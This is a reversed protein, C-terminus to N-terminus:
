EILCQPFAQFPVIGQRGEITEAHTNFVALPDDGELGKGLAQNFDCDYLRGDWGACVTSRCMVRDLNAPNFHRELLDMYCEYQNLVQLRKAYRTIPMNTMVYLRNFFIGFDRRLSDKYEAELFDQPPPLCASLPNYVLHLLLEGGEEGYGLRNLRRIMEVSVDFAGHGRQRDAVKSAHFPLSAVIEVENSALFEALDEMGPEILVTLNCRDIVRMGRRKAEHVLFRFNPNLEPAGGTLDVRSVKSGDLFNLIAEATEPSMNESLERPSAEAYCHNCAMNCFKGLNVQLTNLRRKHLSGGYESLKKQFRDEPLPSASDFDNKM